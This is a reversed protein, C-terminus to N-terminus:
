GPACSRRALCRAHSRAGALTIRGSRIPLIRSLALLLTTKGAGNAGVIACLSDERLRLSIGHLVEIRGYGVHLDDVELLASASM